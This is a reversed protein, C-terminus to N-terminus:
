ENDVEKKIREDCIAFIGCYDLLEEISYSLSDYLVDETIKKFDDNDDMFDSIYLEDCIMRLTHLTLIMPAIAITKNYLTDGPRVVLQNCIYKYLSKVINVITKQEYNYLDYPISCVVSRKNDVFLTDMYIFSDFERIVYIDIDNVRLAFMKGDLTKNHTVKIIKIIDPHIESNLAEFEGFIRCKIANFINKFTNNM